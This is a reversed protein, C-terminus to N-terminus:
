EGVKIRAPVENISIGAKGLADWIELLHELPLRREAAQLYAGLLGKPVALADLTINGTAAVAIVSRTDTAAIM